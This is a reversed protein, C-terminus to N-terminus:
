PRVPLFSLIEFWKESTMDSLEVITVFFLLFICHVMYTNKAKKVSQSESGDELKRKRAVEADM